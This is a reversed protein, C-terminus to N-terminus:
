LISNAFDDAIIPTSLEDIIINVKEDISLKSILWQAFNISKKSSSDFSQIERPLIGYLVSARIVLNDPYNLVFKEGMLKTKGYVNIPNQKDIEDYSTKKMGDFVSDTSLHVLKINMNHSITSLEKLFDSNIKEAQVPNKECYDVNNLATCNIVIDPSFNNLIKELSNNKDIDYKLSNTFEFKPDRLNFSGSIEYDNKAFQAIKSGTLSGIGIIFLKKM